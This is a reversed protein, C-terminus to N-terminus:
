NAKPFYSRSFPQLPHQTTLAEIVRTEPQGSVFWLSDLHDQLQGVLVSPPRESDDKISRGVWSI